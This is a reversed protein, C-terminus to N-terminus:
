IFGLTSQLNWFYIHCGGPDLFTAPVAMQGEFNDGPPGQPNLFTKHEKCERIKSAAGTSCRAGGTSCFTPEESKSHHGMFPRPESIKCCVHQMLVDSVGVHRHNIRSIAGGQDVGDARYM